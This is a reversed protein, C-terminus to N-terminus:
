LLFGLRRIPSKAKRSMDKACTVLIQLALSSSFKRSLWARFESLGEGRITTKRFLM